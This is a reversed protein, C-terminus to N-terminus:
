IGFSEEKSISGNEDTTRIPREKAEEDHDIDGDEDEVNRENEENNIIRTRRKFDGNVLSNKVSSESDVDEDYNEDVNSNGLEPKQKNYDQNSKESEMSEDAPNNKNIQMEDM